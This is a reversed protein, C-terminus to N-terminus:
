HLNVWTGSAYAQIKAVTSNYILEGNNESTLTRNDRDVTTYTPLKFAQTVKLSGDIVATGPSIATGVHLTAAPDSNFIGVSNSIPKITIASTLINNNRTLIKFDQGNQNSTLQFSAQSVEITNEQSAGLILPISNNISVTGVTTTDEDSAMFNNATKSNGFADILSDASAARANIKFDPVNGSTFGPNITGAFGEIAVSPQFEAHSSFIGLLVAGAWLKVVIKPNGATDLVTVVEFGSIGQSRKYIPGALMRDIGDYFYLQNEASDIWFDGQAPTTPSIPSVVPGSAVKFGAGDYVKLRNETLDFWLQGTIPKNPESTAAFNELLKVFNENIYEGYGSVNKGILTIDTAVRDISSDIIETLLSGDTKNIKYTM